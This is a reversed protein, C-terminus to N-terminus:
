RLGYAVERQEQGGYINNTVPGNYVTSSESSGGLSRPLQPIRPDVPVETVDTHGPDFGRPPTPSSGYGTGAHANGQEDIYYPMSYTYAPQGTRRQLARASDMLQKTLGQIHLAFEDASLGSKLFEQQLGKLEQGAIFAEGTIGAEGLVIALKTLGVSAERERETVIRSAEAVADQQEQYLELRAIFETASQGSAEIQKALEAFENIAGSLGGGSGSGHTPTFTGRAADLFTDGTLGGDAFSKAGLQGLLEMTRQKNDLPLVMEKGHLMALGGSKPMNFVGGESAPPIGGGSGFQRPRNQEATIEDFQSAIRLLFDISLNSNNKVLEIFREVETAPNLFQDVKAIFEVQMETPLAGIITTLDSVAQEGAKSSRRIEDAMVAFTKVAADELTSMADQTLLLQEREKTLAEPVAQGLVKYQAIRADIQAIAAENQLEAPSKRAFVDNVANVSAELADYQRALEGAIEAAGRLGDNFEVSSEAADRIARQFERQAEAARGTDRIQDGYAKSSEELEKNFVSQLSPFKQLLAQYEVYSLNLELVAKKQGELAEKAAEVQKNATGVQRGTSPGNLVEDFAEKASELKKISDIIDEAIAESFRRTGEDEGFSKQFAEFRELENNLKLQVRAAAEAKSKANTLTDLLGAGTIKRMAFDTAAVAATLAIFAGTPSLLASRLATAAAATGNMQRTLNPFEKGLTGARVGFQSMQASGTALTAAFSAAQIGKTAAGFALLGAAAVPASKAISSIVPGLPKAAQILDTAGAASQNLAPLLTDGVSIGVDAINNRLIELQAATTGYRKEAEATLATNDRFAKNGTEVSKRLLDGAGAVGLFSRILRQDELGLQELITFAEDGARGLGEVFQIFAEGPNSKALDQFARTSTGATKAFVDLAKGGMAASKTLEILVKQIATGGAESEVGTSAFAAGIGFISSTSLKAIKGAGAIRSAYELIQKETSASKNGLDVVASGMRDFNATPEKTVNAIQAFATIAEEAALNTTAGLDAAVRTAKTLNAVGTVGLQGAAATLENLASASQPLERSLGRNAEGLQKFDAETGDVTKRISAMSSEFAIAAGATGNLGGRFAGIAAQAGIFGTAIGAVERKFNTSIKGFASFHQNLKDMGAGSKAAADLHKLDTAVKRLEASATNFARIQLQLDAM